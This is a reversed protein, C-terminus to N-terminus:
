SRTCYSSNKQTKLDEILEEAEQTRQAKGRSVRAAIASGATGLVAGGVFGSAAEIGM